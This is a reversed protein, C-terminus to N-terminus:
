SYLDGSDREVKVNQTQPMEPLGLVWRLKRVGSPDWSTCVLGPGGAQLRSGTGGEVEPGRSGGGVAGREGGRGPHVM